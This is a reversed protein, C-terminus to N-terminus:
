RSAPRCVGTKPDVAVAHVNASPGTRVTYGIKKLHAVDEEPWSSELTLVRDGETHLRPAAMADELEAGRGVYHALVEFVANPIRRGGTGGLALVPRDNRVVITPCMNHLPRKGPGPSNPHKPRPDFRSMGHGLLLGLGPVGVQAGFLSGHTLTLAVMMGRNDAVSLHITGGAKGRDGEAAAPKEARVAAEVKAALLKAHGASLLRALPVEVKAPDGFHRLRDDWALRLAELQAHRAAPDRAPRKEWGLVKLVHLAELVTAGGATLPATYITCDRWALALPEV